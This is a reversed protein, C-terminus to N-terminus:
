GNIGELLKRLTPITLRAGAISFHNDDRYLWGESSFRKCKQSGCFLPSFDVVKIKESKAWSSVREMIADHDNVMENVSFDKSPSYPKMLVPRSVMFDDGDPFVPNNKILVIEASVKQLEMLAERIDIFSDTRTLYQSVVVVDPNNQIIWEKTTLNSEACERSVKNTESERFMIKCGDHAWIVSNWGSLGAAEVLAQSIHGAHSDGILLVTKDAGLSDYTCPPGSPSDRLCKPDLTGAYAPQAVNRDLGFYGRQSSLDMVLLIILPTLMSFFLVSFGRFNGRYSPDSHRRLPNEIKSYILTGMALSLFMALSNTFLTNPLIGFSELPSYKAVYCLPMHILYISYSRYGIWQLLHQIKLPLSYLSHFYLLLGTLLTVFLTTGVPNDSLSFFLTFVLLFTLSINFHQNTRLSGLIKSSSITSILGGLAFQWFRTFPSYFIFDTQLAADMFGLSITSLGPIAWWAFSFFFLLLLSRKYVDRIRHRIIFGLFFCVPLFLYIQEEVSLSWMHILPNPNPSFYNGSYRFAGFNGLLFITAIGQRAFRGHELPSGLFFM